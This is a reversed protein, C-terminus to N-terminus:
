GAVPSRSILSARLGIRRVTGDPQRGFKWVGRGATPSPIAGWGGPMVNADLVPPQEVMGLADAWSPPVSLTGLADAQGVGAVAEGDVGLAGGTTSAAGSDTPTSSGPTSLKHLAQPVSSTARSATKASSGGVQSTTGASVRLPSTFNSMTSASRSSAAYRYMATADKAWMESYEAETAMVAPTNQGFNNTAILTTLQVRNATIMPPPVTMAFATEYAGAAAVAHNAAEECHAATSSMWTLYPTVAAVVSTSSPGMWSGDTLASIVSQYVGAATHLEGALRDWGAAAALLTAPGAGSYMRGSNVEPPLAGFDM